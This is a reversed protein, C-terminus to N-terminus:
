EADSDGLWVGDNQSETGCAVVDVRNMWGATVCPISASVSGSLGKSTVGCVGEGSVGVCGFSCAEVDVNDKGLVLVMLVSVWMVDITM